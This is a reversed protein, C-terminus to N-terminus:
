HKGTNYWEVEIHMNRAFDGLRERANGAQLPLKSLRQVVVVNNAFISQGNARVVLKFFEANGKVIFSIVDDRVHAGPFVGGLVHMIHGVYLAWWAYEKNTFVNLSALYTSDLQKSHPYVFGWRRALALGLLTRVEHTLGHAGSLVGNMAVEIGLVPQMQRPYSSHIWSAYALAPVLRERIVPPADLPLCSLLVEALKSAGPLAYPKTCVILPDQIRVEPPLKSFLYSERMSSQAYLVRKVAPLEELACQLVLLAASFFAGKRKSKAEQSALHAQLHEQDLKLVESPLFGYGNLVSLAMPQRSSKERVYRAVAGFGGGSILLKTGRPSKADQRITEPLDLDNLARSLAARLDLALQQTPEKQMKRALVLGGFPISIRKGTLMDGHCKVWGLHIEKASLKLYLGRAWHFSSCLGWLSLDYEREETFHEIPWSLAKKITDTIEELNPAEQLSSGIVVQGNGEPVGYDRCIHLFRLLAIRADILVSKPTVSDSDYLTLSAKDQFVCPLIRAVANSTSNISFRICSAEVDVFGQLTM